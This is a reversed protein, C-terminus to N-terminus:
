HSRACAEVKALAEQVLDVGEADFMATLALVPLGLIANPDDSTMRAILTFGWSELKVGGACAYPTDLRLYRDAQEADFSKYHIETTVVAEQCLGTAANIMCLGSYFCTSQGSCALLQVLAQDHTHPKGHIDGGVDQVQDGAIILGQDYDSAVREAKARSLRKVLAHASEDALPTEDVDPSQCSFPLGFRAMQMRRTPSSSALVVAVM